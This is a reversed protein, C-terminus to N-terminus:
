DENLSVYTETNNKFDFFLKGVVKLKKKNRLYSNSNQSKGTQRADVNMNTDREYMPEPQEPIGKFLLREFKRINSSQSM